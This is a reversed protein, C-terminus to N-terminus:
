LYMNKIKWTMNDPSNLWDPPSWVKYGVKLFAKHSAINDKFHRAIIYKYSTNILM